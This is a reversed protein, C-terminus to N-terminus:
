FNDEWVERRQTKAPKRLMFQPRSVKMGSGVNQSGGENVEEVDALSSSTTLNHVSLHVGQSGGDGQPTYGSRRASLKWSSSGPMRGSSRTKLHALSGRLTSVLRNLIAFEIRLKVGYVCPKFAAQVYFYPSYSMGLLTCDLFVVLMNTYILHRMVQRVTKDDQGLASRNLLVRRTEIIYMMSIITEQVFFITVQVRDWILNAAMIRPIGSAQAATGLGMTPLAIFITTFIIM